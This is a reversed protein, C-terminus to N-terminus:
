LRKIQFFFPVSQTLDQFLLDHLDLMEGYNIQVNRSGVIAQLTLDKIISALSSQFKLMVMEFVMIPEQFHDGQLSALVVYNVEITTIKTLGYILPILSEIICHNYAVM